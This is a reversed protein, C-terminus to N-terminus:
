KHLFRIENGCVVNCCPGSFDVARIALEIREGMKVCYRVSQGTVNILLDEFYNSFLVDSM